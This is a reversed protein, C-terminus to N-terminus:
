GFIAKSEKSYLYIAKAVNIDNEVTSHKLCTYVYSLASCKLRLNGVEFVHEVDLKNGQISPINLYYGRSDQLISTEVGDIYAKTNIILNPNNVNFYVRLSTGEELVLTISRASFNSDTTEVKAMYDQFNTYSLLNMTEEFESKVNKYAKNDLYKDFEDQAYGGYNLMSKVLPKIKLSVDDNANLPKNCYDEISYSYTKGAVGKGNVVNFKVKQTMEYAYVGCTLRYKGNVFQADSILQRQQRGNPLTFLIYAKDDNVLEDSLAFSFNFEILGNLGLSFTKLEDGIDNYIQFKIEKSGYYNNIGKVTVKADEGVNINNSYSLTYDKDKVLTAGLENIVTVRPEVKNGTYPADEVTIAVNSVDTKENLNTDSSDPEFEIDFNQIISYFCNAGAFMDWGLGTFNSISDPNYKNNNLTVITKQNPTGLSRFSLSLKYKTNKEFQINTDNKDSNSDFIQVKNGNKDIKFLNLELPYEVKLGVSIYDYINKSWTSIKKGTIAKDISDINIEEPMDYRDDLIRLGKLEINGVYNENALDGNRIISVNYNGDYFGSYIEDNRLAGKGITLMTDSVKYLARFSSNKTDNGIFGLYNGNTLKLCASKVLIGKDDYQAGNYLEDILEVSGNGIAEIFLEGTDGNYLNISLKENEVTIPTPEFDVSYVVRCHPFLNAGLFWDLKMPTNIQYGPEIEEGNFYAKINKYNSDDGTDHNLYLLFSLRYKQGGKFTKMATEALCLNDKNISIWYDSNAGGTSLYIREMESIGPHINDLTDSVKTYFELVNDGVKPLEIHSLDIREPLCYSYKYEKNLGSLKLFTGSSNKLGKIEHINFIQSISLSYNGDFFYGYKDNNILFNKNIMIKNEGIKEIPKITIDGYGNGIYGYIGHDMPSISIVYDDNHLFTDEYNTTNIGEYLRNTIRNADNGSLEIILNGDEDQYAILSLEGNDNKKNVVFTATATGNTSVIDLTHLGRGIKSVYDANLTVVTSGPEVAYNKKDLILNDLKVNLFNDYSANSAFSLERKDGATIIANDGKIITPSNPAIMEGNKNTDRYVLAFTSFKNTKFDSTYYSNSNYDIEEIYSPFDLDIIKITGDELSLLKYQREIDKNTNIIEKKIPISLNAYYDLDFIERGNLPENTYGYWSSKMLRLNFIEGISLSNKEAANKFKNYVDTAVNQNDAILYQVVQIGEKFMEADKDDRIDDYIYFNSLYDSGIAITNAHNIYDINGSDSDFSYQQLFKHQEDAYSLEHRIDVSNFSQTYIFIRYNNNPYSLLFVLGYSKNNLFREDTTKTLMSDSSDWDVDAWYIDFYVQNSSIDINNIWPIKEGDEGLLYANSLDIKTSAGVYPTDNFVCNILNFKKLVPQNEFSLDVNVDFDLLRYKEVKSDESTFYIRFSDFSLPKPNDNLITDRAIILEDGNRSIEKKNKWTCSFDEINTCDTIENGNVDYIQRNTFTYNAYDSNLDIRGGGDSICTITGDKYLYKSEQIIYSLFEDKESGSVSIVLDENENQRATVSVDMGEGKQALGPGTAAYVRFSVSTFLMLFSLLSILFNKM